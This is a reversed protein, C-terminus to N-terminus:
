KKNPSRVGCNRIYYTKAGVIKQILINKELEDIDKILLSILPQLVLTNRCSLSLKIAYTFQYWYSDRRNILITKM